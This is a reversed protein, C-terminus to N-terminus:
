NFYYFILFTSVTLSRIKFHRDSVHLQLLPTSTCHRSIINAHLLTPLQIATKIGQARRNLTHFELITRRIDKAVIQGDGCMAVFFRLHPLSREPVTWEM